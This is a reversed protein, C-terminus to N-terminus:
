NKVYVKVANSVLERSHLTFPPSFVTPLRLNMQFVGYILGPSAGQYLIALPTGAKDSVTFQDQSEDLTMAGTAPWTAGTGFVTVISGSAAPNAASNVTGDQNLAAAHTGDSTFIGLSQAVPVQLSLSGVQLAVAAFASLGFPVQVNMQNTGGYLVQAPLGGIQVPGTLGFGFISVLAGKYVGTNLEYSASNGFAVIAPADFAYRPPLHLLAGHAGPVMLRGDAEFVPPGTVVGTPFRFLQVAKAGAADLRLVFDAGLAPVGALVPFQASSSTGALYANGASDLVIGAARADPALGLDTSYVWSANWKAVFLGTAGALFAPQIGPDNAVLTSYVGFVNVNGGSDQAMTVSNVWRDGPIASSLIPKSGDAAIRTIYGSNTNYDGGMLGAVTVVGGSDVALDSVSAFTSLHNVCRSGGICASAGTALQTGYVLKGAASIKVFYSYVYSNLFADTGGKGSLFANPTTPFDGENTSGGVYVNGSADTAIADATTAYRRLSSTSRQQGGLYTAFLLKQGTPDLEMVFAATRYPVKQSVIPNVLTFDDSDTEGAIWINGSGDVAVARAVDNGSGGPLPTPHLTAQEGIAPGLTALATGVVLRRGDPLAAVRSFTFPAYELQVQGAAVRGLVACWLAIHPLGRVNKLLVGM